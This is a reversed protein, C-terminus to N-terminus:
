GVVRKFTRAFHFRSMAMREALETLTLTADANAEIYRCLEGIREAHPDPGAPCLKTEDMSPLRTTGVAGSWRFTASQRGPAGQWARVGPRTFVNFNPLRSGLARGFM